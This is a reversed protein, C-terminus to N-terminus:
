AADSALLRELRGLCANWGQNHKDRAEADAFEEHRLTLETGGDAARLEVTVLSEREPTSKWAWTFVLRRNTAVERYVGSVDNDEGDPSRMVIRYRGGVRVDCELVRTSFADSPALWATLAEPQTWARWVKAPEVDFRRVISLSPKQRVAEM